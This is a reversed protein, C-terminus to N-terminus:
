AVNPTLQKKSIYLLPARPDDPPWISGLVNQASDQLISFDFGSPLNLLDMQLVHVRDLAYQSDQSDDGFGM